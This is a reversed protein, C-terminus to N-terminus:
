FEWDEEVSKIAWEFKERLAKSFFKEIPVNFKKSFVVTLRPDIYNIKSTGLAVEKNDEKDQAQLSMTDVRQDLKAINAELKEVTPGRGEAEVKGTKNEKNYKKETEKVIELRTELESVKMEKEGEAVLKENDKEFKKKIKQTLEELLFAQHEKIWEPTLDEDIAFFAPGKKKKLNPELDLMQQKMRWKQYRLGKIREGMKEMQGAHAAGVTRKHNCLIAVRRNADNYAKVKEAITGSAKMEKLLNSMTFSANYTRFVKATLGPMYNQLHKNLASTTLRDFVEDGNKKPAKKFIKLNKFVQQDVQVEDYFRISDKGLFDFVVTNPPKLTINEYKLSCCGVTEAEDEGKENGARLAFQDILYVATAKQREVMLDHKLNKQYDKRIKDIYKKLERAKEFKKFDSQGKVDSNAALMVYKYNGNINEQWMALWTGEQDHKVEKWNHGPPPPPVTAEKGINITIQEPLVRTKVRGTKPHEGRGRFLSPPEVRFNGVKQKRGDWQCFMYCAEQEDKEAKLRKKEAAPLNRKEERKADYYEFIPKFDCKAFEKIDVKNGQSDKAGGTKKLIDRFDQFFNKQFVPNEVNHTSNLMSGFFGAVEEADPHLTVPVGNYKLKVNKPLAEYPPPFVVGNHELTTWKKTGDGKTPDDWWRYEDDDNEEVDESEAKVKGKSKKPTTSEAKVKKITTKDDPLEKKVGNTQKKSTAPKTEKKVASPRRAARADKEAKQEIKKKQASLKREIPVDSDSEEGIATESAKPLKRGNLALPVDDDSEPDEHKIATRRRKSLPQDDEDSSEPEAYSKQKDISARSKRKSIVGHKDGDQMEVDKDQVPGFRVSVGPDLGGNMTPSKATSKASSPVANARGNARVLPIDDESSSM